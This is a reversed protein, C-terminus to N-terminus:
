KPPNPHRQMPIIAKFPGRHFYLFNMNININFYLCTLCILFSTSNKGVFNSLLPSHIIKKGFPPPSVKIIKLIYQM